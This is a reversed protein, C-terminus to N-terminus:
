RWCATPSYLILCVRVSTTLQIKSSEDMCQSEYEVASVGVVYGILETAKITTSGCVM